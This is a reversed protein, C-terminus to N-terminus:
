GHTKPFTPVSPTEKCDLRKSQARTVYEDGCSDRVWPAAQASDAAALGMAAVAAVSVAVPAMFAALTGALAAVAIRHRRFNM